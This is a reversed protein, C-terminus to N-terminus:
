YDLWLEERSLPVSEPLFPNDLTFVQRNESRIKEIIESFHRNFIEDFKGSSILNELGDNIMKALAINTKNVYFYLATPYKILIHPEISINLEKEEKFVKVEQDIVLISRPFYDFRKKDLMLYLGNFNAGRASTIGNSLLIKYDTWTHFQGPVFTKFHELTTVHKFIDLNDAHVVSTRWGNLGKLIPIKIGMFEANREESAYAIVINIDKNAALYSFSRHHPLKDTYRKISYAKNPFQKVIENLLETHYYDRKEGLGMYTIDKAYVLRVDAIAIIVICFFILLRVIFV